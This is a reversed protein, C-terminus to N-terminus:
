RTGKFAETTLFLQQLVWREQYDQDIEIPDLGTGALHEIFWDTVDPYIYLYGHRAREIKRLLWRREPVWPKNTKRSRTVRTSAQDQEETIVMFTPIEQAAAAIPDAIEEHWSQMEPRTSRTGMFGLLILIGGNSLAWGIEQRAANIEPAFLARNGINWDIFHHAAGTPNISHGKQYDHFFVGGWTDMVRWLNSGVAWTPLSVLCGCEQFQAWEFSGHLSFIALKDPNSYSRYGPNETSDPLLIPNILIEPLSHDRTFISWLFSDYNATLISRVLGDTCLRAIFYYSQPPLVNRSYLRSFEYESWVARHREYSESSHRCRLCNRVHLAPNGSLIVQPHRISSLQSIGAGLLIILKRREGEPLLLLRNVHDAFNV